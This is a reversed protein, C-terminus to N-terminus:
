SKNSSITLNVARQNNKKQSTLQYMVNVREIFSIPYYKEEVIRKIKHNCVKNRTKRM